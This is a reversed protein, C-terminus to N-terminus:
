TEVKQEELMPLGIPRFPITLSVRFGGGPLNRTEFEFADGYLQQLRARTNALGLGGTSAQGAAMGIGDDSVELDLMDRRGRARIALHGPTARPAIGHRIANEVLPQLIMHPVRADLVNAPADIEVQLRDGLRAREIELYSDLFSLEEELSVEQTSSYDLAGRLLESLRAIMRDAAKVDRYMLASITNLANFLFHPHLQMKLLHLETQALRSSLQATQADRLRLRRYFMLAHAAGMILWYVALNFPFGRYFLEMFPMESPISGTLTGIAYGAMVETVAVGASALGHVALALSRPRRDLPFRRALSFVIVTLAAWVAAGAFAVTMALELPIPRGVQASYALLNGTQLIGFVTWSGLILVVEFRRQAWSLEPDPLRLIDVVRPRTM